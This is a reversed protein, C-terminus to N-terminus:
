AEIHSVFGARFAAGNVVTNRVQRANFVVRWSGVIEGTRDKIHDVATVSVLADAGAHQRIYALVSEIDLGKDNWDIAVLTETRLAPTTTADM